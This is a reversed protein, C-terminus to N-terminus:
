KTVTLADKVSTSSGFDTSGSYTAVLSYTGIPLKTSSLTCAGKAAALTITCLTTSSAKVTVTGTPASGTFQPSITVSLHEVQENGYTVKVTSLKLTTKSIAKAVTLTRNPSASTVFDANGKYIAVLGNKTGVYTGAPLKTGSLTCSGKGASLTVNCLTTSGATITVTGSPVGSHEPSVTVEVRTAEEDGYVVSPKSLTLATSSSAKAVSFSQQRQPAKSYDVNGAQNADLTCNGGGTFSVVGSSVSCVASSVADVTIEPTLGSTASAKPTYTAGAYHAGTPASSTFAVTQPAAVVTTAYIPTDSYDGVAMCDAADTCNVGEFSAGAFKTPDETAPAWIGGSETVYVPYSNQDGGVATCNGAGTCSVGAWDSQDALGSFATLAGWTGNTESAYVTPGVVTCNSADSCSVANPDQQVGVIVTIPGWTGTTETAYFPGVPGIGVATCDAVGTCSVANFQTVSQNTAPILVIPKGWTGDTETEVLPNDFTANVDDAGYGVATCDGADTCSVGSLEGDGEITGPIAIVQLWIGNTETDAIPDGNSDTGVATCDTADTCSVGTFYGNFSGSISVEVISGWTGNTETDRM